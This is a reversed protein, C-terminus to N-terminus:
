ICCHGPLSWGPSCGSDHLTFPLHGGSTKSTKAVGRAKGELRACIQSIKECKAESQLTNLPQRGFLTNECTHNQACMHAHCNYLNKALRLKAAHSPLACAWVALTGAMNHNGLSARRGAYEKPMKTCLLPGVLLQHCAEMTCLGRLKTGTSAGSSVPASWCLKCFHLPLELEKHPQSQRQYAWYEIRTSKSAGGPSCPPAKLPFKPQCAKPNHYHWAKKLLWSNHM